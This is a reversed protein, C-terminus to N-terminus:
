YFLGGKYVSVDGGGGLHDVLVSIKAELVFDATPELRAYLDWQGVLMNAAHYLVGRRNTDPLSVLTMQDASGSIFTSRDFGCLAGVGLAWEAVVPYVATSGSAPGLSALYLMVRDSVGKVRFVLAEDDSISACAKIKFSLGHLAAERVRKEDELDLTVPDIM